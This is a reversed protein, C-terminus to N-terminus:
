KKTKKFQSPTIGTHKKYLRFFNSYNQFGSKWCADELSHGSLVLDNFHHIKCLIVYNWVSMGLHAKFYHSLFSASLHFVDAISGVTIESTFNANIYSIISRILADEHQPHNNTNQPPVQILRILLETVKCTALIRDLHDNSKVLSLIHQLLMDINNQCITNCPILKGAPTEMNQLIDFTANPLNRKFDDNIHLVIREHYEDPNVHFRFITNPNLLVLDGPHINYHVDKINVSCSGRISFYLLHSTCMHPFDATSDYANDGYTHHLSYGPLDDYLIKQYPM